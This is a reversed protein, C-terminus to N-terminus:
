VSANMHLVYTKHTAVAVENQLYCVATFQDNLETQGSVNGDGDGDSGDDEEEEEDDDDNAIELKHM